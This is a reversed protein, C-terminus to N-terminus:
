HTLRRTHQSNHVGSKAKHAASSSEMVTMDLFVGQSFIHAIDPDVGAAHTNIHGPQRLSQVTRTRQKCTTSWHPGPDIISNTKTKKKTKKKKQSSNSIRKRKNPRSQKLTVKYQAFCLISYNGLCTFRCQHCQNEKITYFFFSHFLPKNNVRYLIQCSAKSKLFKATLLRNSILM